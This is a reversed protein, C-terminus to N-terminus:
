MLVEGVVAGVPFTWAYGMSRDGRLHTRYYTVPLTRGNEDLPLWLFRFTSVNPSRHTGGPAGWPFELNGNGFPESGNASINYYAWHVGPLAGDWDQYARPIEDETYLMLRPDDLIAQIDPDDVKPLLDRLYKAKEPSMLQPVRPRQPEQASLGVGNGLWLISSLVAVFWHRWMVFAGIARSVISPSRRDQCEWTADRHVTFSSGSGGGDYRGTAWHDRIEAGIS